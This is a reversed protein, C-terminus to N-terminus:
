GKFFWGWHSYSVVREGGWRSSMKESCIKHSQNPWFLRASSGWVEPPEPTGTILLFLSVFLKWDVFTVCRLCGPEARGDIGLSMKCPSGANERSLMPYLRWLIRAPQRERFKGCMFGCVFLCSGGWSLWSFSIHTRQWYVKLFLQQCFSFCSPQLSIIGYNGVERHRKEFTCSGALEM